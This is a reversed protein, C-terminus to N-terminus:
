DELEDFVSGPLQERLRALARRYAQAATNPEIGLLAAVEANSHQELARLLILERDREGLGELTKLVLGEREGQVARSLPGRTAEPLASLPEDAGAGEAETARLRLLNNVRNLLSTSLFRLLVPTHRGEREALGALRPLAQAWVDNVVDEPELRALLLPGMRHRAHTLLLPTFRAVLWELSRADGERARRVHLTTADFPEDAPKADM